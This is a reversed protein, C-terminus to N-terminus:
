RPRETAPCGAVFAGPAVDSLVVAGAAVLSREGLSVGQIAVAGTGVHAGDGVRVHGSLTVGPAIHAHDGIECHHDISARTNVITNRGIRVHPQLVAGAMVQAGELLFTDTAIVTAPHVVVAFRYGRTEHIEFLRRRAETEHTGGVGVVLEIEDRPYAAIADDDGLYPIGLTTVEKPDAVGVVEVGSRRLAELVVAAHGGGGLIVVPRTM